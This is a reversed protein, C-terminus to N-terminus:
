SFRRRQDRLLAKLENSRAAGILLTYLPTIAERALQNIRGRVEDAHPGPAHEHFMEHGLRLYAGSVHLPRGDADFSIPNPVAPDARGLPTAVIAPDLDCPLEPRRKFHYWFVDFYRRAAQHLFLREQQLREDEVQWFVARGRHRAARDPDHEALLDYIKQNVRPHLGREVDHIGDRLVEVARRFVASRTRGCDALHEALSHSLLVYARQRAPNACEVLLRAADEPIGVGRGVADWVRQLVYTYTDRAAAEFDPPRGPPCARAGGADDFDYTLTDDGLHFMVHRPPAPLMGDWIRTRWRELFNELLPRERAPGQSARWYELYQDVRDVQWPNGIRGRRRAILEVLDTAVPAAADDVCNVLPLVRDAVADDPVDFLDACGPPPDLARELLKETLKNRQGLSQTVLVKCLEFTLRPGLESDACLSGAEVLVTGAKIRNEALRQGGILLEAAIRNIPRDDTDDLGVLYSAVQEGREESIAGSIVNRAIATLDALEHLELNHWMVHLDGLVDAAGDHSALFQRILGDLVFHQPADPAARAEQRNRAVTAARDLAARVSRSVRGRQEVLAVRLAVVGLTLYDLPETLPDDAAAVRATTRRVIQVLQDRKGTALSALWESEGSRTLPKVILALLAGRAAAHDVIAATAADTSRPLLPPQRDSRPVTELYLGSLDSEADTPCGYDHALASAAFAVRSTGTLMYASWGAVLLRETLRRDIGGQEGTILLHAQEVLSRGQHGAGQHCKDESAGGIGAVCHAHAADIADIAAVCLARAVQAGHRKRLARPDRIANLHTVLRETAAASWGRPAGLRNHWYLAWFARAHDSDPLEYEERVRPYVSELADAFPFAVQVGREGRRRPQEELLPSLERAVSAVAEQVAAPSGLDPSFWERLLLELPSHRPRTPRRLLAALDSSAVPAPAPATAAVALLAFARLTGPERHALQAELEDLTEDDDSPLRVVDGIARSRLRRDERTPERKTLRQLLRVKEDWALPRQRCRWVKISDHPELAMLNPANIPEGTLKDAAHVPRRGREFLLWLEEQALPGPDRVYHEILKQTRSHLGGLHDVVVVRRRDDDVLARRLAARFKREEERNTAPTALADEIRATARPGFPPVADHGLARAILSGVAAALLLGVASEPGASSENALRSALTAAVGAAVVIMATLMWWRRERELGPVLGTKRAAARVRRASGVLDALEDHPARWLDDSGSVYRHTWRADLVDRAIMAARAASWTM